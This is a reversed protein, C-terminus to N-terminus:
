SEPKVVEVLVSDKVKKLYMPKFQKKEVILKKLNRIPKIERLKLHSAGRIDLTHLFPSSAIPLLSSVATNSLDLETIRLYQLASINWLNRNGALSIAFGHPTSNIKIDVSHLEPNDILLWCTLIVECADISRLLFNVRRLLDIAVDKHGCRELGYALEALPRPYMLMNTKRTQQCGLFKQALAVLPDDQKVQGSEAMALVSDFQCLAISLCLKLKLAEKNAPEWSLVKDVARLAPRLMNNQRQERALNLLSNIASQSQDKMEAVQEATKLHETRESLYMEATREKELRATEYMALAEVAKQENRRLTVMFISTLIVLLLTSVAATVCLRKNRRYFLKLVTLLAAEEAKTAFGNLYAVVEKKLAEASHYRSDPESSMAKNVVAELSPPIVNFTVESPSPLKGDLTAHIVNKPSMGAFPPKFTLMSYLIAGLAYIDSLKDDKPGTSSIQEPAMYGPTGKILGDLTIENYIDADLGPGLHVEEAGESIIKGLGWDCVLVEGFEGVKVNAPKLDRHVVNKSHAYSVADCIKVFVNLLDNLSYAEIFYPNRKGLEKLIQNLDHGEIFKMIFFPEQSSDFGLDYVPMINPHELYSNIVAERFFQEINEYTLEKLMTAKAVVRQTLLDEARIIRKLGGKAYEGLEKYREGVNKISQQLPFGFDDTAEDFRAKLAQQFLEQLKESNLEM